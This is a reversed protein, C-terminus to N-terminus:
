FEFVYPLIMGTFSCIVSIVGIVLTIVWPNWSVAPPISKFLSNLFIFAEKEGGKVDFSIMAGSSSYQRKIIAKEEETGEKKLFGLYYVKEVQPHNKLFKAVKKANKAQKEAEKIAEKGAVKALGKKIPNGRKDQGSSVCRNRITM